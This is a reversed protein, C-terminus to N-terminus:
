ADKTFGRVIVGNEFQIYSESSQGHGCCANQVGPLFGICPDCEDDRNPLNCHGCARGPNDTVPQGTDSYHWENSRHDIDHGRWKSSVMM